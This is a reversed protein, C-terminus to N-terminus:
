QRVQINGRLLPNTLRDEPFWLRSDCFARASTFGGTPEVFIFTARDPQSANGGEGYDVVRFWSDRGVQSTPGTYLPHESDNKTIVGGIWARNPNAPDTTMCTIRGHIKIAQGNVATSFDYSGDADGSPDRQIATFGFQVPVGPFFQGLLHGGGSASATAESADASLAPRAQAPEIVEATSYRAAIQSAALSAGPEAPGTPLTTEDACAALLLTAGFFALQKTNSHRGM